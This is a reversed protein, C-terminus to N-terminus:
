GPACWNLRRWGDKSAADMSMAWGCGTRMPLRAVAELLPRLKSGVSLVAGAQCVGASRRHGAAFGPASGPEDPAVIAAPGYDAAPALPPLRYDANSPPLAALPYGGPPLYDAPEFADHPQHHRSRPRDTSSYTPGNGQHDCRRDLVTTILGCCWRFLICEARWIVLTHHRGGHCAPSPPDIASGDIHVTGSATTQKVSAWGCTGDHYKECKRIPLRTGVKPKM